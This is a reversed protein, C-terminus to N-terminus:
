IYFTGSLESISYCVELFKILSLKFSLFQSLVFTESSYSQQMGTLVYWSLCINSCHFYSIPIFLYPVTSLFIRNFLRQILWSDLAKVGPFAKTQVPLHRICVVSQTVFGFQPWDLTVSCRLHFNCCFSYFLHKTAAFIYTYNIIQNGHHM